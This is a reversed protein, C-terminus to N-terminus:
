KVVACTQERVPLFIMVQAANKEGFEALFGDLSQDM